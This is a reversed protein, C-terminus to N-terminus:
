RQRCSPAPSSATYFIFLFFSCHIPHSKTAVSPLILDSRSQFAATPAVIRQSSRKPKSPLPSCANMLIISASCSGFPGTTQRTSNSDGRTSFPSFVVDCPIITWEIATADPSRCSNARWKFKCAKALACPLLTRSNSARLRRSAILPAARSSGLSAAKPADILSMIAAPPFDPAAFVSCSRCFLISSGTRRSSSSPTAWLAFLPRKSLICSSFNQALVGVVEGGSLGGCRGSGQGPRCVQVVPVAHRVAIPRLRLLNGVAGPGGGKNGPRTPDSSPSHWSHRESDDQPLGLM